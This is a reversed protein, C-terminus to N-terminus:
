VTARYDGTLSFGESPMARLELTTRGAVRVRLMGDVEPVRELEVTM